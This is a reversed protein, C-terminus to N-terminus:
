PAAEAPASLIGAEEVVALELALRRAERVYRDLDLDPPLQDTLEVLPTAGDTKAVKRGSTLYLIPDGDTSWYYRVVRGLRHGRWAAGGTVKIVTLFMRPDRCARITQEFPTRNLIYELVAESCVTMQPNKQMQERLNGDKWPNTIAGKRKVKDDEGIAIYTNVNAGYLARYRTREVRFGTEAEWQKILQDLDNELVRRCRLVIGDTNGSLVEIGMAECREILMLLSLQGTLTVAIMLQPAYLVSYESGLKGYVGNTAIKLGDAKVKEGVAKAVMRDDTLERYVDLFAAGMAEPYLGLKCIINPYQSAVDLDILAHEADAHVARNTETSHLGGIGMAYGANGIKIILDKLFAPTEVGYNGVHFDIAQLSEVVANIRPTQFKIFPPLNYSFIWSHPDRKTVRRGIIQEVKRKVIAEGIQADSKSFLDINYLQGLQQRLKLPEQMSRFVLGTHDLDNFCYLTVVNMQRHTLEADEDFPLDVMYRGHLRAALVKLGQRVSPNSELMDIHDLVPVRVNYERELEWPKLNQKIIRNSVEKLEETSAGRMVLTILPLDYNTGNFTIICNHRLVTELRERDLESRDSLEFSLRKGDAFRQLCVLFMNRFVEVDLGVFAKDPLNWSSDDFEIRRDAHEDLITKHAALFPDVWPVRPAAPATPPKSAIIITPAALKKPQGAATGAIAKGAGTGRERNKYNMAPM